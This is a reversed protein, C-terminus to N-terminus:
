QTYRFDYEERKPASKLNPKNLDYRFGAQNMRMINNIRKQEEETRYEPLALASSQAANKLMKAKYYASSLLKDSTSYKKIDNLPNSSFLLLSSLEDASRKGKPVNKYYFKVIDKADKGSLMLDNLYQARQKVKSTELTKAAQSLGLMAGAATRGLTGKLYSSLAIGSWGTEGIGQFPAYKALSSIPKTGHAAKKIEELEGKTYGRRNRESNLIKQFENKMYDFPNEQNLASERIGEIKENKFLRQSYKRADYLKDIIEQSYKGQSNKPLDNIIDDVGDMLMNATIQDSGSANYSDKKLSSRLDDLGSLTMDGQSFNLLSNLIGQSVKKDPADIPLSKNEAKAMKDQLMNEFESQDIRFGSDEVEQYLQNKRQTIQEKSPAIDDLYATNRGSPKLRNINGTGKVGILDVALPLIQSSMGALWPSGFADYTYDSIWENGKEITEIAPEIAEGIAQINRRGEYTKPQYTFREVDVKYPDVADFLAQEMTKDTTAADWGAKALQKASAAGEAFVGSALSAATEMGGLVEGVLSTEEVPDTEINQNSTNRNLQNQQIPQSLPLNSAKLKEELMEVMEYNRQAKAIRLAKYLDDSAFANSGNPTQSQQNNRGLKEDILSVMKNNGQYEALNRAELLQAESFEM